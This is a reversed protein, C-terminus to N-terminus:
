LHCIVYSEWIMGHMLFLIADKNIANSVLRLVNNIDDNTRQYSKVHFLSVAADYQDDMSFQRADGVMYRLNANELKDAETHAIDVMEASIDIGLIEYGGLKYFERDHRGTGCGVVLMKELTNNSYKRILELVDKAEGAYNKNQYFLDYYRAYEKLTGM